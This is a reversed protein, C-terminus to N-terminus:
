ESRLSNVPNAIAARFALISVTVLAILVAILGALGFVWWSMTIRYAYDQLWRHIVFGALPWAILIAWLVLRLFNRSLLGVISQISAGMVKRIGIEKIRKEASYSALGFLGLCSIVISLVALVSVMTTVQQDARYVEKFREDLFQYEMPRDPCNRNWVSRIFALAQDTRAGDIRVSMAYFGRDALNFMFMTEIKNHLSNFNFDKSIGAIYGATDFGFPRGILWSMPRKPADKLLERALEENIIYERGSASKENSFNKGYIVPIKYVRLYDPDVVLVTSALNRVPGDGKFNVGSQDLSSGLQDQAATVGTILSSNSLEKKLVDFKQATVNDFKINVLQDRDFGPDKDQMYALQRYVFITAIILFIASTFQGIVLINRLMGKDKGVQPLGKLVKVPQFSSLYAAPYLGSLIGLLITAGLIAGVIWSNQFLVVQLHRNSLDNVFPIALAVLGLALVLALLSLLLTESLFQVGLQLRLAGVSKRIGVERAREASRATSLNMFNVCAILLVILAIALFIRTYNGDFKMYNMRDIAFDSTTAHVDKLPILFLEYYKWGEGNAMHKKLYAPFKAQLAAVNTNPSLEFFTHLWNGGWNEMLDPTFWTNFSFLADFQIHSNEPPDAAIGKVTFLTTDEYAHRITKGMPDETGFLKRATTETLVVSNPQLLATARDGKLLRFDFLHLFSTDVRLVQPLFLSKEGYNLQYKNVWRVRCYSLIEPFEQQLTPGMPFMSLAVKQSAVMGPFKQVENLRYINKTHFRDFSNEYFVFLLIVICAALGTALGAINIISYVKNKWLNRWATKFYSRFM